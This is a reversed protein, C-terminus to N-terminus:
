RTGVTRVRHMGNRVSAVLVESDSDIFSGDDSVVAIVRGDILAEGSPRLPSRTRGKRGILPSQPQPTASSRPEPEPSLVLGPFGLVYEKAVVAVFAMPGGVIGGVEGSFLLSVMALLLIGLLVAWFAVGAVLCALLLCLIIVAVRTAVRPRLLSPDSVGEIEGKHLWLFFGGVTVAYVTVALPVDIWANFSPM